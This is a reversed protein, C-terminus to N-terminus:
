FLSQGGSHSPWSYREGFLIDYQLIGLGQLFPNDRVESFDVLSGDKQQFFERHIVPYDKIGQVLYDMYSPLEINMRRLLTPALYIPSLHSPVDLDDLLKPRNTWTACPVGAMRYLEEYNYEGPESVVSGSERYLAFEPGFSPLHDGCFLLIIPEPRTELYRVLRGLARDADRLGTAYTQLSLQLEKSFDGKVDIEGTAYRHPAYTGHNQISLAYIFFPDGAGNQIKAIIKDVLAEDSIFWGREQAGKFDKLSIFEDFGLRPYAHARNWFWDHYPHIATTRYGHDKLIRAISPTDRNLYHDFPIAGPPLFANSLGTLIEFESVSTNGGFVPSIMYFGPFRLRLQKFNELPDEAPTYRVYRLDSFSENVFILLNVAEAATEPPAASPPPTTSQLLTRVEEAGYGSPEDILLPQFNLSFALLFGNRAYNARQNWTTNEIRLRSLINVPLHRYYIPTGLVIFPLVCLLLRQKIGIFQEWKVLGYLCAGSAVGVSLATPFLMAKIPLAPLLVIIQEFYFLDWAFFPAHLNVLKAYNILSLVTLLAFSVITGPIWKGVIAVGLVMLSYILFLNFLALHPYAQLWALLKAAGSQALGEQLALSVIGAVLFLFLKVLSNM